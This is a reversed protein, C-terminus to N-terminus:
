DRIHILKWVAILLYSVGIIFMLIRGGISTILFETLESLRTFGWFSAVFASAIISIGFVVKLLNDIREAFIYAPRVLNIFGYMRVLRLEKIDKVTYKKKSFFSKFFDQAEETINQFLDDIESEDIIEELLENVRKKLKKFTKSM